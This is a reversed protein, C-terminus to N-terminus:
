SEIISVFIGLLAIILSFVALPIAGESYESIMVAHLIFSGLLTFCIGTMSSLFITNRVLNRVRLRHHNSCGSTEHQKNPLPYTSVRYWM